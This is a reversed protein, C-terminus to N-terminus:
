KLYRGETGEGARSNGEDAAVEFSRKEEGTATEEVNKIRLRM